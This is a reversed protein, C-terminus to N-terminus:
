EQRWTIPDHLVALVWSDEDAWKCSEGHSKRSKRSTKM